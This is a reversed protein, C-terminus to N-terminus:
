SVIHAALATTIIRCRDERHHTQKNKGELTNKRQIGEVNLLSSVRLQSDTFIHINIHKGANAYQCYIFAFETFICSDPRDTMLM